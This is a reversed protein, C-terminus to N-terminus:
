CFLIIVTKSLLELVGFYKTINNNETRLVVAGPRGLRATDLVLRALLFLDGADAEADGAGAAEGEGAAPALEGAGAAGGDVGDAGLVAGPM